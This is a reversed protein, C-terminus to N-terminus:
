EWLSSLPVAYFNSNKELEFVSSGSYLVVGGKFDKGAKEALRRLGNCDNLEVSAARKIEVGWVSKGQEIVLDVEIQDKDRYHYFRYDLDSWTSQCILQQVVFSELLNGFQKADSSWDAVTLNSLVSAMGTDVVHIKPTKILRKSQNSHWAPLRRILFLKELLRIYKEVTARDIGLENAINSQNLLNATRLSLLEILRILEQEDRIKEFDKIDKQVIANLYQRYWRALQKNNLKNPEPYGGTCIAKVLIKADFKDGSIKTKFSGTTLKMLLTQTILDKPKLSDSLQKEWESLPNLTMMQMRGALSESVKPLLLLNASGTLLFRGLKEKQQLRDEDVAMKIALLLEPARQIEDLIVSQPLGGIFGVPDAKAAQLFSPDDLSIYERKPLLKRALTTKGTQRAGVLCVVPASSLAENIQPEILRLYQSM